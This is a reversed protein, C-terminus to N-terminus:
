PWSSMSNLTNFVVVKSSALAVCKALFGTGVYTLWKANQGGNKRSLLWAVKLEPHKESVKKAIYGPNCGVDLGNFHDFIVKERDMRVFTFIAKRVLNSFVSRLHLFMKPRRNRAIVM